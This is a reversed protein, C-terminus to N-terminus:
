LAVNEVELPNCIVAIRDALVPIRALYAQYHATARHVAVAANDIYLEDLVFRDKQSQDQWIDWRVNGPEARCQPAMGNLLTWLDDRKQPRATLIAVIKVHSTMPGRSRSGGIALAFVPALQVDTASMAEYLM